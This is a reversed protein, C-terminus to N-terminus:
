EGSELLMERMSSTADMDSEFIEAELDRIAEAEDYPETDYESSTQPITTPNQVPYIPSPEYTRVSPKSLVPTSVSPTTPVGSREPAPQETSSLSGVIYGGFLLVLIATAPILLEKRKMKQLSVCFKMQM